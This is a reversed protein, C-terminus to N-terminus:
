GTSCAWHGAASALHAFVLGLLMFFEHEITFFRILRNEMAAGFDMFASKTLQSFVFYLLFGVLLQIDVAISYFTLSKQVSKNWNSKKIWGGLTRQLAYLALLVIVWRLINHIALTIIKATEM